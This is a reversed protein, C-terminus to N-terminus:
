FHCCADFGAILIDVPYCAYVTQNYYKQEKDFQQKGETNKAIMKLQRDIMENLSQSYAMYKANLRQSLGVHDDEGTPNISSMRSMTQAGEEYLAKLSSDMDKFM